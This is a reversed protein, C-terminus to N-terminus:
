RGGLSNCRMPSSLDGVTTLPQNLRRFRMSTAHGTLFHLTPAMFHGLDRVLKKGLYQIRSTMVHYAAVAQSPTLFHVVDKHPHLGILHYDCEDDDPDTDSEDVDIFNDEDSNWSYEYRDDEDEHVYAEEDQSAAYVDDTTDSLDDM